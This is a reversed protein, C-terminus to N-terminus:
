HKDIAVRDVERGNSDLPDFTFAVNRSPGGVPQVTVTFNGPTSDTIWRLLLTDTQGVPGQPGPQLYPKAIFEQASALAALLLLPSLLLSFRPAPLSTPVAASPQHSPGQKM